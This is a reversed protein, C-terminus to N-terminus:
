VGQFKTERQSFYTQLSERWDPIKAGTLAGYKTKDFVSSAPRKAPLPYAETSIPKIERVKLPLGHKRGQEVIARAFEYWSCSGSSAFHYIGCPNPGPSKFSATLLAIIADALDATYTPSGVQDAVITLIDREGALRLITEVFNPGDPGYLWSTRIIFYQKLGSDLIAQEGKLKSRGYASLPGTPDDERLPRIQTGPFVYDTSIHVLSADLERAVEALHEVGVANVSTALQEQDECADVATFAACNIIIRPKIESLVASVQGRDTIDFLPLDYCSLELWEPVRRQIMRGLMGNAGVLAVPGIIKIEEIM